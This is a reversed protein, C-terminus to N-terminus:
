FRVAIGGRISRRSSFLSLVTEGEEVSTQADLLNRADILAEARIPLGFTPLDQAVVISLSPDYVALRGAFPDIAFVTAAPSFRFVTKVHTGTGINANLQIAGTQFYANSLISAPKINGTTSLQQGQGVSYGAAASLVRNIRRSYVVRMGRAAGQQNAVSILGAGADSGFATAPTSLIGLARGNTTDFFAMAEVSSENNLVREVGFEFRRSREMVSRGDVIAVPQANQQRFEIPTGEFSEISQVNSDDNGPAYAVKLRTKANADYQLGFRPTVSHAKSSGVFRSYDLGLVLVIGDKVLWEDIARMSVQGLGRGAIGPITVNDLFMGGASVNVTHRKAARYRATTELRQPAGRGTGTQGVFILDLNRGAPQNYAFNVGMYGPAFSNASSSAYTEFIGQGHVTSLGDVPSQMLSIEDDTRQADEAAADNEQQELKAVAQDKGEQAQFISRRRHASSLVWKQNDRDKRREPLTRGSGVPELNFRYVLEDSSKVRVASFVVESYGDAVARLDYSGPSVRATFTGDAASRTQKVVQNAGEKILSVLAGALPNGKSDRVIGTITALSRNPNATAATGAASLTYAVFIVLTASFTRRMTAFGGLALITGFNWRAGGLLALTLTLRVLLSL